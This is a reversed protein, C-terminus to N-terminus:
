IMRKEWAIFLTDRQELESNFRLHFRNILEQKREKSLAAWWDSRQKIRNMLNLRM